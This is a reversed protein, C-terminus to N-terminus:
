PKINNEHAPASGSQVVATFELVPIEIIKM